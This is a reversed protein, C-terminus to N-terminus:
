FGSSHVHVSGKSSVLSSVILAPIWVVVSSRKSLNTSSHIMGIMWVVLPISITGPPVEVIVHM